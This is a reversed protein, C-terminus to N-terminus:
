VNSSSKQELMYEWLGNKIYRRIVTHGGFKAKRLDRVRASLSAETGGCRNRLMNLTYWMGDSMVEHVRGLLSSLREFDRERDYTEGDFPM